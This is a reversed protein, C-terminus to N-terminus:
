RQQEKKQAPWSLSEEQPRKDLVDDKLTDLRDTEDKRVSEEKVNMRMSVGSENFGPAAVANHVEHRLVTRLDTRVTKGGIEITIPTSGPCLVVNHHTSMRSVPNLDDWGQMEAHKIFIDGKGFAAKSPYTLADGATAILWLKEVLGKEQLRELSGRHTRANMPTLSRLKTNGTQVGEVVMTGGWSHAYGDTAYGGEALKSLIVPTISRTWRIDARVTAEAHATLLNMKNPNLTAMYGQINLDPSLVVFPVKGQDRCNLLYADFDTAVKQPTDHKRAM